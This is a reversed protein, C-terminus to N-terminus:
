RSSTFSLEVGREKGFGFTFSEKDGLPIRSVQLNCQPCTAVEYKRTSIASAAWYCFDCILFERPLRQSSDVSYVELLSPM